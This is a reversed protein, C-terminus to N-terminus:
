SRVKRLRVALRLWGFGLFFVLLAAGVVPRLYQIALEATTPVLIFEM